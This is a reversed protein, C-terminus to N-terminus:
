LSPRLVEAQRYRLDTYADVLSWAAEEAGGTERNGSAAYPGAAVLTLQRLNDRIDLKNVSTTVVWTLLAAALAVQRICRRARREGNTLRAAELVRPRLDKSVQVYNAASRVLAEVESVQENWNPPEIV